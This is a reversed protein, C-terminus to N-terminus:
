RVEEVVFNSKSVLIAALTKLSTKKVKVDFTNQLGSICQKIFDTGDCLLEICERQNNAINEVAELAKVRM